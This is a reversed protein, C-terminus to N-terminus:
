AFEKTLRDILKNMQEPAICIMLRLFLTNQKPDFESGSCGYVGIKHCRVTVEEDTACVESFDLWALATATSKVVRIRTKTHLAKTLLARNNAILDNYQKLWKLCVPESYGACLMICSITNDSSCHIGNYLETKMLEHKASDRIIAYGLNSAGMNFTKSGSTVIINNAKHESVDVSYFDVHRERVESWIEDAIILVNNAACIESMKQIEDESFVKGVPNHPSCLIFAKCLPDQCKATFDDWDISYSLTECNYQLRNVVLQRKKNTVIMWFPQYAPSQILVKDNRETFTALAVQILQVVGNAILLASEPFTRHYFYEYWKNIATIMPKNFYSYSLDGYQLNYCIAKKIADPFQVDTDACGLMLDDQNQAEEYRRSHKNNM